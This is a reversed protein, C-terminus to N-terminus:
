EDSRTASFLTRRLLGDEIAALQIRREQQRQEVAAAGHLAVVDDHHRNWQEIWDRAVVAFEATDDREEIDTFGARQLLEAYARHAAVAVPGDRHARRRQRPNLGPTPHITLFATRGGPPLLRRSARLV